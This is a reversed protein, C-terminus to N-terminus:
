AARAVAARKRAIFKIGPKFAIRRRVVDLGHRELLRKLNAASFFLCHAPPCYADWKEIDRPRRWHGIDPTTLYLVGGPKMARALAAVFANCDRSHEIVESCYVADFSEAPLDADEIFGHVFRIGPFHEAAYKLANGDPEVGTVEFGARRAAESMFGGNAGV